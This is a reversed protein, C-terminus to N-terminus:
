VVEVENGGAVTDEADLDLLSVLIQQQRCVVLQTEEEGEDM